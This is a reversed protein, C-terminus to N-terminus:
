KFKYAATVLFFACLAIQLWALTGASKHSENNRVPLNLILSINILFTALCNREQIYRLRYAIAM